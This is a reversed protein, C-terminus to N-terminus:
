RLGGSVVLTEGTMWASEDSALFVAVPGIDNPQGFRGLPTKAVMQQAFESGVIGATRAGETDVGGPNLSNVRIKRAGLEQALVGTIGDLAHKTATYVVTGPMPSRSVASGVNIISGGEPGIYKLAERLTLIPGLVNTNFQRHFESETV